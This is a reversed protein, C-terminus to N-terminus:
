VEHSAHGPSRPNINLPYYIKLIVFSSLHLDIEFLDSSDHSKLKGGVYM